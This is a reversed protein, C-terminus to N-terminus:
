RIISRFFIKPAAFLRVLPFIFDVVDTVAGDNSEVARLSAAGKEIVGQSVSTGFPRLSLWPESDSFTPQFNLHIDILFRQPRDGM